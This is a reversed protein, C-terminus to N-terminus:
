RSRIALKWCLKRTQDSQKSAVGAVEVSQVRVVVCNVYVPGNLYKQVGIQM